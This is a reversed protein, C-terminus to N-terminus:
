EVIEFALEGTVKNVPVAGEEKTSGKYFSTRLQLQYRGVKASKMDDKGTFQMGNWRLKTRYVGPRLRSASRSPAREAEYSYFGGGVMELIGESMGIPARGDQAYVDPLPGDVIIAYELVIGGEAEKATYTCKQMTFKLTVGPMTTTISKACTTEALATDLPEPIPDVINTASNQDRNLDGDDKGANTPPTPDPSVPPLGGDGCGGVAIALVTMAAAATFLSKGMSQDILLHCASRM